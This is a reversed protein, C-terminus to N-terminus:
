PMLSVLNERCITSSVQVLSHQAQSTRIKLLIKVGQLFLWATSSNNEMSKISDDMSITNFDVKDKRIATAWSGDRLILQTTYMPESSREGCLRCKFWGDPNPKDCHKCKKAM